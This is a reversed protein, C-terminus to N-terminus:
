RINVSLLLTAAVAVSSNTRSFGHAARPTAAATPQTSPKSMLRLYDNIEGFPREFEPPTKATKQLLRGRAKKLGKQILFGNV